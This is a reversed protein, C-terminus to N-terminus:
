PLRAPVRISESRSALQQILLLQASAQLVDQYRGAPVIVDTFEFQGEPSRWLVDLWVNYCNDDQDLAIPGDCVVLGAVQEVLESAGDETDRTGLFMPPDLPRTSDATCLEIWGLVVFSEQDM